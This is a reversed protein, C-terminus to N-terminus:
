GDQRSHMVKVRVQFPWKMWRTPTDMLKVSDILGDFSGRLFADTLESEPKLLGKEGLGLGLGSGLGSGLGLEM